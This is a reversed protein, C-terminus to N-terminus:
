VVQVLAIAYDGEGTISVLLERGDATQLVSEPLSDLNVVPCGDERRLTEVARFDFPNPTKCNLAKFVAEKVAFRGALFTWYDSANKALAREKQTFARRVLAGGLRQDLSRFQSVSVCDIGIGKPTALGNVWDELM